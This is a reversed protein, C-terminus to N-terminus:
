ATGEIIRKHEVLSEYLKLLRTTMVDLSFQKAHDLAKRSQERRVEPNLLLRRVRGTFQEVDLQTLFGGYGDRVADLAGGEGVAVVPTGCAEAEVLVMGFTETVSAFIFVDGAAYFDALRRRDKVLGAFIVAEDLGMRHCDRKIDREHRGTGVILMKLSGVTNDRLLRSMVAFLFRINKESTLRGVYVLVRDNQKLGFERRIRLGDANKLTELDIGPSICEIRTKIGYRQLVGQMVKSHVIVCESRNCFSRSCAMALWRALPKPIIPAIHPAYRELYTHYTTVHPIGLEKSVQYAPYLMISPIHSHVVDLDLQQFLQRFIKRAAWPNSIRYPPAVWSYTSPIRIVGPESNTDIQPYQPAFIYVNHGKERLSQSLNAVYISVGDYIPRYGETIFGVNM